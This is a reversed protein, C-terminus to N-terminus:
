SDAGLLLLVMVTNDIDRVGYDLQTMNPRCQDLNAQMPISRPQSAGIITTRPKWETTSLAVSM